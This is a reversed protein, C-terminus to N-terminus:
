YYIQKALADRNNCCAVYELSKTITEKGMQIKSKLLAKEFVTWDEIGLLGAILKVQDPNKVKGCWDKVSDDFSKEDFEIEGIHLCASSIRWVAM